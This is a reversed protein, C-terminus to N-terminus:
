MQEQLNDQRRILLGKLPSWAVNVQLTSFSVFHSPSITSVDPTITYILTGADSFQQLLHCPGQQKSFLPEQRRVTVRLTLWAHLIFGQRHCFQMLPTPCVLCCNILGFVVRVLCFCM